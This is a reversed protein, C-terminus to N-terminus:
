YLNLQFINVKIVVNQSVLGTQFSRLLEKSQKRLIFDKFHGLNDVLKDIIYAIVDTDQKFKMTEAVHKLIITQSDYNDECVFYIECFAWIFGCLSRELVTYTELINKPFKLIKHQIEKLKNMIIFIKCCLHSIQEIKSELERITLDNLSDTLLDAKNKSQLVKKHIVKQHAKLMEASILIIWSVKHINSEQWFESESIDRENVPLNNKFNMVNQDIMTEIRDLSSQMFSMSETLDIKVLIQIPALKEEIQVTNVFGDIQERNAIYCVYNEFIRSVYSIYDRIEYGFAGSSSNLIFTVNEWYKIAYHICNFPVSMKEPNMIAMTFEKVSYLWEQLNPIESINISKHFTSLMQCFRLLIQTNELGSKDNFIKLCFDIIIPPFDDKRSIKMYSPRILVLAHLLRMIQEAQEYFCDELLIHYFRIISYNFEMTGINEWKSSRDGGTTKERLLVLIGFNDSAEEPYM